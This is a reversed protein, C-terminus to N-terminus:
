DLTYGAIIVVGTESGVNDNFYIHVSDLSDEDKYAHNMPIISNGSGSEFVSVRPVIADDAAYGNNNQLLFLDWDTSLTEVIITTIVAKSTSWESGSLSVDGSISGSKLYVHLASGGGISISPISTSVSPVTADPFVITGEDEDYYPIALDIKRLLEDYHLFIREIIEQALDEKRHVNFPREKYYTM